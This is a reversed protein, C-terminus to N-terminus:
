FEFEARIGIVVATNKGEHPNFIVQLDPQLYLRDDLAARYTIEAVSETGTVGPNADLYSDGFVTHSLGIGFVDDERGPILGQWNLGGDVYTHVISISEKASLSYRVFGSIGAALQQDLLFYFVPLNGEMGGNQFNEFDEGTHYFGGLKLTGPLAGFGMPLGLEFMYMAGEGKALDITFGSQNESEDGANGEYVGAQFYGDSGLPLIGWLGLGGVPWIPAPTNGSQTPLPGFNSNIFLGAPDAAMFDDDLALLGARLAPGGSFSHQYWIQFVRTTDFADINSLAGFDGVHDTPSEGVLTQAQIHILGHSSDVDGVRVDLGYDFLALGEVGSEIGGSANGMLDAAGARFLQWSSTTAEEAAAPGSLFPIWLVGLCVLTAPLRRIFKARRSRVDPTPRIGIFDRATTSSWRSSGFAAAWPEAPVSQGGEQNRRSGVELTFCADKGTTRAGPSKLRQMNSM